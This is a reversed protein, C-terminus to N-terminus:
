SIMRGLARALLALMFFIAAGFGLITTLVRLTALPVLVRRPGGTREGFERDAIGWLGFAFFCIAMSIFIEWGPGRWYAFACAAALGGVADAALRGDSAHRARAALFELLGDDPRPTYAHDDFGSVV